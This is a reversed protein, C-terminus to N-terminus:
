RHNWDNYEPPPPLPILNGAPWMILALSAQSVKLGQRGFIFIFTFANRLKFDGPFSFVFLLLLWFSVLCCAPHPASAIAASM